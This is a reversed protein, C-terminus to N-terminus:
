ANASGASLDEPIPHWRSTFFRGGLEAENQARVRGPWNKLFVSVDERAVGALASLMSQSSGLRKTFASIADASKDILKFGPFLPWTEQPNRAGYEIGLIFLVISLAELYDEEGAFARRVGASRWNEDRLYRLGIDAYGLFAGPYLLGRRDAFPLSQSGEYDDKTQLPHSLVLKLVDGAMNDVAKAGLNVLLRLAMLAPSGQAPKFSVGESVDGSITIWGSVLRLVEKLGEVYEADAMALAFEEVAEVETEFQRVTDLSYDFIEDQKIQEAGKHQRSLEGIRAPWRKAYFRRMERVRRRLEVKNDTESIRYAIASADAVPLPVEVDEVRAADEGRGAHDDRKAVEWPGGLTTLKDVFSQYSRALSLRDDVSETLAAIEEGYAYRPVYQVQIENFYSELDCKELDYTEKFLEEFLPQYGPIEKGQGYRWLTQLTPESPEIRSPVPFISLPRVDDSQRRYDVATRALDPIHSLSQRNPTFVLVLTEPMLITCIGSIDTIGTRSDILVYRYDASLRGALAVFLSPMTEFLSHWDFGNVRSAYDKGFRGAKMLHLHAIDTKQIFREIAIEDAIKRAAEDGQVPEGGAFEQVREGIEGFLEILGPQEDLASGGDIGPRTEVKERFFSHLGPADLDWDIM